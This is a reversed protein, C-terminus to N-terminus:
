IKNYVFDYRDLLSKNEGVEKYVSILTKLQDKLVDAEIQICANKEKLSAVELALAEIQHKQKSVVKGLKRREHENVKILKM